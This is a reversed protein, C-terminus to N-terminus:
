HIRGVRLKVEVCALFVKANSAEVMIDNVEKLQAAANRVAEYFLFMESAFQHFVCIEAWPCKCAFCISFCDKKICWNLM